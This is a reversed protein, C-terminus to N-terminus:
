RDGPPSLADYRLVEIWNKEVREFIVKYRADNGEFAQGCAVQVFGKVAVIECEEGEPVKARNFLEAALAEDITGRLWAGHLRKNRAPQRAGEVLALQAFVSKPPDDDYLPGSLKLDDPSSIWWELRTGVPFPGGGCMGASYNATTAALRQGARYPGHFSRVIEVTATQGPMARTPRVYVDVDHAEVVRVEVLAYPADYPTGPQRRIMSCAQSADIMPVTLM